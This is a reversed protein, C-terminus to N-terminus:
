KTYIRYRLDTQVYGDVLYMRISMISVLADKARFDELFTISNAYSGRVSLTSTQFSAEEEDSRHLSQYSILELQHAQVASLIDSSVAEIQEPLVPRDIHKNIFAAQEQWATMAARIEAAQQQLTALKGLSLFLVATMCLGGILLLLFLGVRMYSQPNLRGYMNM